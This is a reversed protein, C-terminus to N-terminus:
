EDSDDWGMSGLVGNLMTVLGDIIPELNTEIAKRARPNLKGIRVLDPHLARRITNKMDDGFQGVRHRADTTRMGITWVANSTREERQLLYKTRSNM